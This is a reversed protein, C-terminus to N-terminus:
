VRPLPFLDWIRSLTSFRVSIGEKMFNPSQPEIYHLGSIFRSSVWKGLRMEARVLVRVVSLFILDWFKFQVKDPNLAFILLGSWLPQNLFVGTVSYLGPLCSKIGPNKSSNSPFSCQRKTTVPLNSNRILWRQGQLLLVQRLSPSVLEQKNWKASFEVTDSALVKWNRQAM